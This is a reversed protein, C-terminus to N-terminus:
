QDTTSNYAFTYGARAFVGTGRLGVNWTQECYGWFVVEAHRSHRTTSHECAYPVLEYPPMTSPGERAVVGNGGTEDESFM